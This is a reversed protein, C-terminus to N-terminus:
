VYKIVIFGGKMKKDLELLEANKTRICGGSCRTGLKPEDKKLTGHIRYIDRELEASAQKELFKIRMKLPGMYNLPNGAPIIVKGQANRFKELDTGRKKFQEITGDTPAWIPDKEVSTIIGFGKPYKASKPTGVRHTSIEELSFTEEDTDEVLRYVRMNSQVVDIEMFFLTKEEQKSEERIAILHEIVALDEAQQKILANESLAAVTETPTSIAMFLSFM